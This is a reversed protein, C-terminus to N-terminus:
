IFNRFSYFTVAFFYIEEDYRRNRVCDNYTQTNLVFTLKMKNYKFRAMNFAAKTMINLNGPFFDETLNKVLIWIDKKYAFHIIFYWRGINYTDEKKFELHM